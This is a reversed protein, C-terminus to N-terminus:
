SHAQSICEYFTGLDTAIDVCEFAGEGKGPINCPTLTGPCYRRSGAYIRAQNRRRFGGTPVDQELLIYSYDKLTPTSTSMEAGCNISTGSPVGNSCHCMFSGGSRGVEWGALPDEIVGTVTLAIYKKLACAINSYCLDPQAVAFSVTGVNPTFALDADLCNSIILTGSTLYTVKVGLLDPVASICGGVSDSGQDTLMKRNITLVSCSVRRSPM